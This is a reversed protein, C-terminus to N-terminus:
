RDIEFYIKLQNQLKQKAKFYNSKSTGVSIGLQQAIEEHKYGEIAHLNFVTRYAPPLETVLVLMEDYSIDSLQSDDNSIEAASELDNHRNHKNEKNFHDISCNIMIRRLWPQFPKTFDFKKLYIFVKMFGDNMVEVAEEKNNSYRLCISMAYSYFM